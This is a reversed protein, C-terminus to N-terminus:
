PVKSEFEDTESPTLHESCLLAIIILRIKDQTNETTELLVAIDKKLENTLVGKRYIQLECENYQNLKRASADKILQSALNMHM